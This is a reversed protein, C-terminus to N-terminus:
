KYTQRDTLSRPLFFYLIINMLHLPLTKDPNLLSPSSAGAIMWTSGMAEITLIRCKKIMKLAREKIQPIRIQNFLFPELSAVELFCQLTIGPGKLAGVSTLPALSM